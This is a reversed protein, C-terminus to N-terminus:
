TKGSLGYCNNNLWLRPLLALNLHSSRIVNSSCGCFVKQLLCFSQTRFMVNAGGGTDTGKINTYNQTDHPITLQM